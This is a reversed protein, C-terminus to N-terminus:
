PDSCTSWQVCGRSQFLGFSFTSIHWKGKGMRWSWKRARSHCSRLRSPGHSHPTSSLKAERCDACQCLTPWSTHTRQFTQLTVLIHRVPIYISFCTQCHTCAKNPLFICFPSLFFLAKWQRLGSVPWPGSLDRSRASILATHLRGQTTDPQRYGQVEKTLTVPWRSKSTDKQNQNAEKRVSLSPIIYSGNKSLKTGLCNSVTGMVKAKETLFDKLKCNYVRVKKQM